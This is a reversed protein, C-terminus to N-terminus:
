NVWFLPTEMWKPDIIVWLGLVDSYRKWFGTDIENFIMNNRLEPGTPKNCALGILTVKGRMNACCFPNGESGCKKLTFDETQYDCNGKLYYPCLNQM